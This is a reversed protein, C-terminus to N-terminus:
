EENFSVLLGFFYIFCTSDLAACASATMVQKGPTVPVQFASDTSLM